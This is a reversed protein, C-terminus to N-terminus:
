FKGFAAKMSTKLESQYLSFQAPMQNRFQKLVRMM